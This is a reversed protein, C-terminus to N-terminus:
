LSLCSPINACFNVKHTSIAMVRLTYEPQLGKKGMHYGNMFRKALSHQSTHEKKEDVVSLVIGCLFSGFMKTHLGNM